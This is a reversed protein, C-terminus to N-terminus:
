QPSEDNFNKEFHEYMCVDYCICVNRSSEIGLSNIDKWRVNRWFAPFRINEYNWNIIDGLQIKMNVEATM